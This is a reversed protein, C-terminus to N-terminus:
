DRWESFVFDRHKQQTHCAHCSVGKDAVLRESRSNEPWAQYGWGNTKTFRADDKLMVGILVREGEVSAKGVDESQLQDFVLMSGDSFKGDRLGQLARENAYVHHIGLFPTELPHGKHITMSKVHVWSRYGDPYDIQDEASVSNATLSLAGILATILINKM